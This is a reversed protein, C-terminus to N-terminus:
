ALADASMTMLLTKVGMRAAALAAECGDHGGGVVIVDYDGALYETKELRVTM